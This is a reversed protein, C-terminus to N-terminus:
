LNLKYIILIVFIVLLFHLLPGLVDTCKLSAVEMTVSCRFGTRLTNALIDNHVMHFLVRIRKLQNLKEYPTM